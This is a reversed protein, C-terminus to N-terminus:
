LAPLPPSYTNGSAIGTPIVTECCPADFGDLAVPTSFPGKSGVGAM